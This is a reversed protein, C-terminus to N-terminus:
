YKSQHWFHGKSNDKERTSKQFSAQRQDVKSNFRQIKELDDKVVDEV